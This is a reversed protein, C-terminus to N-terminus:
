RVNHNVNIECGPLLQKLREAKQRIIEEPDASSLLLLKLKRLNGLGIADDLTISTGILHLLELDALQNLYPISDATVWRCGKLRLETISQLKTLDRISEDSIETNDLDLQYITKLRSCIWSLEQDNISSDRFNFRRVHLHSEELQHLGINFFRKWFDKENKYKAM